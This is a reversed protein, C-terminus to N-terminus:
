LNLTQNNVVYEFYKDVVNRIIEEKKRRQQASSHEYYSYGDIHLYFKTGLKILEYAM